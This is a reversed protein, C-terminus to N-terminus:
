KNLLNKMIKNIVDNTIGYEKSINEVISQIKIDGKKLKLIFNKLELLMNKRKEKDDFIIAKDRFYHHALYNRLDLLEILNNELNKPLKMVTKLSKLLNGLTKQYKKQFFIDIESRNIKYRDKLKLAVMLNVISTEICQAFYMALGYKAYIERIIWSENDINEIM